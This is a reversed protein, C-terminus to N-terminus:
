DSVELNALGSVDPRLTWSGKIQKLINSLDGTIDKGESFKGPEGLLTGIRPLKPPDFTIVDNGNQPM